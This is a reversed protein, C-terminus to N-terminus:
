KVGENFQRQLMKWIYAVKRKNGSHGFYAVCFLNEKEIYYRFDSDIYNSRKKYKM